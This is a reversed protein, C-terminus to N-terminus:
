RAGVMMTYYQGAVGYGFEKASPNLINARHGPSNIWADFVAKEGEFNGMAINSGAFSFNYGADIIFDFDTKGEPNIHAFYKKEMMDWSKATCADNLLNNYTIINLSNEERARNILDLIGDFDEEPKQDSFVQVNSSDAKTTISLNDSDNQTQKDYTSSKYNEKTDQNQTIEEKQNENKAQVPSPDPTQAVTAEEQAATKSFSDDVPSAAFIINACMLVVLFVLLSLLLHNNKKHIKKM